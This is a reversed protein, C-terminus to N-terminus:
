EKDGAAGSWHPYVARLGSLILSLRPFVATCVPFPHLLGLQPDAKNNLDEPATFRLITKRQKIDLFGSILSHMSYHNCLFYPIIEFIQETDRCTTQNLTSGM